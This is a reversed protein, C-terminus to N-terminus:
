HGGVLLVVSDGPAAKVHTALEKELFARANRVIGESIGPTKIRSATQIVRLASAFDELGGEGWGPVHIVHGNAEIITYGADSGIHGIIIAM